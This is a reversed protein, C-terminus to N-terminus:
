RPKRSVVWRGTKNSGERRLRNQAKLSQRKYVDLHTYSVAGLKVRLNGSSGQAFADSLALLQEESLDSHDRLM